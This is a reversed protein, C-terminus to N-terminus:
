LREDGTTTQRGDTGGQAALYDRLWYRGTYPPFQTGLPGLVFMVGVKSPVHTLTRYAVDRLKAANRLRTLAMPRTFTRTTKIHGVGGTAIVHDVLAVVGFDVGSGLPVKRRAEKTCIAEVEAVTLAAVKAPM